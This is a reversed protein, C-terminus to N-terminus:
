TRFHVEDASMKSLDIKEPLKMIPKMIKMRHQDLDWMTKSNLGLWRAVAGCPMEEMLRGALESLAMTMNQFYPHTFTVKASRVRDNCIHCVGRLQYLTITVYLFAGLPPGKIQREKWEHCYLISSGCHHCRCTEKKQRASIKLELTNKNEEFKELVVDQLGLASIILHSIDM